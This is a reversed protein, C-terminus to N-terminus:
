VQTTVAAGYDTQVTLSIAAQRTTQDFELTVDLVEAVGTVQAAADSLTRRALAITDDGRLIDEQWPTGALTDLYWEGLWLRLREAVRLRVADADVAVSFDPALDGGVTALTRTTTM